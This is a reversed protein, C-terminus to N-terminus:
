DLPIATRLDHDILFICNQHGNTIWVYRSKLHLNYISAQELASNTINTGPEKCEVLLLVEGNRDSLAIDYRKRLNHVILQKEVTIHNISYALDLLHSIASQRVVEEPTLVLWEKRAQCWIFEQDNKKTFRLQDRYSFLDIM